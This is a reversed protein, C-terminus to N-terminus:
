NLNLEPLEALADEFTRRTRDFPVIPNAEDGHRSVPERWRALFPEVTAAAVLTPAPRRRLKRWLEHWAGEMARLRALDIAARESEDRYEHLAQAKANAAAVGHVGSYLQGESAFRNTCQNLERVLERSRDDVWIQLRRNRDLAEQDHLTVEGWALWARGTQAFGAAVVAGIAGGALGILLNNSM